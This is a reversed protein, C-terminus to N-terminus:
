WLLENEDAEEPKCLFPAHKLQGMTISVESFPVYNEM